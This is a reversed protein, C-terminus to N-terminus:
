PMIHEVPILRKEMEKVLKLADMQVNNHAIWHMSIFLVPVLSRILGFPPFGAAVVVFDGDDVYSIYGFPASLFFELATSFFLEIASRYIVPFTLIKGNVSVQITFTIQHAQTTRARESWLFMATCLALRVQIWEICFANKQKGCYVRHLTTTNWWCQLKIYIKFAIMAVAEWHRTEITEQTSWM